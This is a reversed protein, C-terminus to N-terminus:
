EKGPLEMIDRAAGVTDGFSISAAYDFDHQYKKWYGQMQESELVDSFISDYRLMVDTSGRKEATRALAMKLDDVNIGDGRLQWLIFIDYFDRPRTNAVGRSM